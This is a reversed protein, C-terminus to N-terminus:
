DAVKGRKHRKSRLTRLRGTREEVQAALMEVAQRAYPYLFSSIADLRTEMELSQWQASDIGQVSSAYLGADYYSGAVMAQIDAAALEDVVGRATEHLRRSVNQLAAKRGYFMGVTPRVQLAGVAKQLGIPTPPFVLGLQEDEEFLSLIAETNNESGLLNQLAQEQPPTGLAGKNLANLSDNIFVIIEEGTAESLFFDDVFPASGNELSTM